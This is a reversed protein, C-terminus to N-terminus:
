PNPEKITFTVASYGESGSDSTSGECEICDRGRGSFVACLLSREVENEPQLILMPRKGGSVELKAKM